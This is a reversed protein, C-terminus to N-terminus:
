NEFLSVPRHLFFLILLSSVKFQAPVILISSTYLEHCYGLKMLLRFASTHMYSIIIWDFIIMCARQNRLPAFTMTADILKWNGSRATSVLFIMRLQQPNLGYHNMRLLKKKKWSGIEGDWWSKTGYIQSVYNGILLLDFYRVKRVRFAFLYKRMIKLKYIM